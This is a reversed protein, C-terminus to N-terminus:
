IFCPRSSTTMGGEDHFILRRRPFLPLLFFWGRASWNLHKFGGQTFEDRVQPSTSSRWTIFTLSQTYDLCESCLNLTPKIVLMSIQTSPMKCVLCREDSVSFLKKWSTLSFVHLRPELHSFLVLDEPSILAARNTVDWITHLDRLRLTSSFLQWFSYSCM